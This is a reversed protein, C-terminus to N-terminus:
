RARARAAAGHRTPRAPPDGLPETYPNGIPSGASATAPTGAPAGPNPQSTTIAAASNPDVQANASGLALTGAALSMWIWQQSM